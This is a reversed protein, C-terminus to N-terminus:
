ESNNKDSDSGSSRKDKLIANIESAAEFDDKKIADSLLEELEKISMNNYEKESNNGGNTQNMASMIIDNVSGMGMADGPKFDPSEKEGTDLNTITMNSGPPMMGKFINAISQPQRNKSLEKNLETTQELISSFLLITEGITSAIVVIMLLTIGLGLAIVAEFLLGQPNFINEIIFYGGGLTLIFSAIISLYIIIGKM